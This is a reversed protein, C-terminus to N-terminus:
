KRESSESSNTSGKVEAIIDECAKKYFEKFQSDKTIIVGMDRHDARFAKMMALVAKQQQNKLLNKEDKYEFTPEYFIVKGQQPRKRGRREMVYWFVPEGLAAGFGLIYVDGHIFTQIWNFEHEVDEVPSDAASIEMRKPRPPDKVKALLSCYDAYEFIISQPKLYEGHIHWIRTEKNCSLYHKWIKFKRETIGINKPVCFKKYFDSKVAQSNPYRGCLVAEIEYGYNTTIIDTFGAELLKRFLPVGVVKSDCLLENTTQEGMKHGVILDRIAMELAKCPDEKNVLSAAIRIPFPILSSENDSHPSVGSVECILHELEQCKRAGNGFARLIGNGLFLVKRPPQSNNTTYPKDM